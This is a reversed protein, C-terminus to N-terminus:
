AQWLTGAFFYPPCADVMIAAGSAGAGLEACAAGSSCSQAPHPRETPAPAANHGAVVGRRAAEGISQLEERVQVGACTHLQDNAAMHQQSGVLLNVKYSSLSAFSRLLLYVRYPSHCAAVHLLVAAQTDTISWVESDCGQSHEWLLGCCLGAPLGEFVGEGRQCGQWLM